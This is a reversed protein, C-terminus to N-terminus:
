IRVKSFYKGTNEDYEVQAEVVLDLVLSTIMNLHFIPNLKLKYCLDTTSIAGSFIIHDRIM